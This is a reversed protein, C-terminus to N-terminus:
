LWNIKNYTAKRKIKIKRKRKILHNAPPIAPQKALRKIVLAM